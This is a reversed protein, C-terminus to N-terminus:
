PFHLILKLNIVATVSVKHDVTANIFNKFFASQQQQHKIQIKLASNNSMQAYNEPFSFINEFPIKKQIVCQMRGVNIKGTGHCTYIILSVEFIVGNKMEKITCRETPPM